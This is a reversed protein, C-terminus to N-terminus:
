WTMWRLSPSPALGPPILPTPPRSLNHPSPATAMGPSGLEKVLDDVQPISPHLHSPFVSARVVVPVLACGAAGWWAHLADAFGPHQESMEGGEIWVAALPARGGGRGWVGGLRGRVMSFMLARISSM